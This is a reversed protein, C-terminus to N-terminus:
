YHLYHIYFLGPSAAHYQIDQAKGDDRDPIVTHCVSLMTLFQRAIASGPVGSEVLAM